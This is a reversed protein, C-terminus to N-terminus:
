RAEPNVAILRTPAQGLRAAASQGETVRVSGQPNFFDVAGEIVTLSTREEEAVISYETGRIAATASPTEVSLRSQGRPSRAWLSGRQLQMSSPAGRVVQKVVLITNRGLRVQTRDAFIIALTGAANTRLVDGAKLDQRVEARRAAPAPVLVATEGGKAAVIRGSVPAARPVPAAEAAAGAALAATAIGAKLGTKM